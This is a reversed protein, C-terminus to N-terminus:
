RESTNGIGSLLEKIRRGAEAPTLGVDTDEPSCLGCTMLRGKASLALLESEGTPLSPSLDPLSPCCHPPRSPLQPKGSPQPVHICPSLPACSPVAQGLVAPALPIAEMQLPTCRLCSVSWSLVGMECAAGRSLAAGRFPFAGGRMGTRDGCSRSVLLGAAGAMSGPAPWGWALALLRQPLCRPPWLVRPSLAAMCPGWRCSAHLEVPLLRPQACAPSGAKSEGPHGLLREESAQRNQGRKSRTNGWALPKAVATLHKGGWRPGRSWEEVGLPSCPVKSHAWATILCRM